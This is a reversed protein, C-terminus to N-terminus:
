RLGLAYPLPVQPLFLRLNPEPKPTFVRVVVGIVRSGSISCSSGVANFVYHTADLDNTGCVRFCGGGINFKVGFIRTHTAPDRGDKM